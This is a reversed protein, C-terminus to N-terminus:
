GREPGLLVPLAEVGRLRHDPRYAVDAAAVEMEPFRWLLTELAVTVELRTLAAGLCFHPGLGFGLHGRDARTVDLREPEDFRKPDRNASGLLLSVTDWQEVAVGGIECSRTATRNAFQVPGDFRLFEEVAGAVLSPDDRLLLLQDRHDVLLARLANGILNTTTEHGAFVFHAVVPILEDESFRDGGEGEAALLRGLLDNAPNGRRREYVARLHDCFATVCEHTDDLVALNAGDQFAAIALSWRRILAHDGPPIDLVECIVTLPLQYALDSIVEMRGTAAVPELLEDTIEQIRGRLAGIARPTFAKHALSRLRQHTKGNTWNLGGGRFEIIEALKSRDGPPTAALSARM